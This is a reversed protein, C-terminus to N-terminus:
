SNERILNDSHQKLVSLNKNAIPGLQDQEGQAGIAAMEETLKNIDLYVGYKIRNIFTKKDMWNEYSKSFESAIFNIVEGKIRTVIEENVKGLNNNKLYNVVADRFIIPLKLIPDRFLLEEIYNNLAKDDNCRRIINDFVKQTSLHNQLISFVDNEVSDMHTFEQIRNSPICLKTTNFDMRFCLPVLIIPNNFLAQINDQILLNNEKLIKFASSIQLSEPHNRILKINYPTLLNNEKLLKFASSVQLPHPHKRTIATIAQATDGAKDLHIRIPKFVRQVSGLLSTDRRNPPAVTDQTLLDAENLTKFALSLDSPHQHKRLSEINVQTLLDAEKLTKFALSLDSPHRHKRISEINDQTLLDAEKLTKFALSLNSPFHYNLIFGKNYKTLLGAEKLIKFAYSVASPQPNNLIREINEQTLEDAEKLFKLAYASDIASKNWLIIEINDQTLLGNKNLIEFSTNIDRPCQYNCISNVNEQTLLDVDKLTKFANFIYRINSYYRERIAEDKLLEAILNHEQLYKEISDFVQPHMKEEGKM